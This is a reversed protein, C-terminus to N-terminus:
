FNHDLLERANKGINFRNYISILITQVVLIIAIAESMIYLDNRFPVPHRIVTEAIVDILAEAVPMALLGGFVISFLSILIFKKM